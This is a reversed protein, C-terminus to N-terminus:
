PRGGGSAGGPWRQVAGAADVPVSALLVQLQSLDASVDTAVSGSAGDALAARDIRIETDDPILGDTEIVLVNGEEGDGEVSVSAVPVRTARLEAGAGPTQLRISEHLKEGELALEIPGPFEVRVVSRLTAAGNEVRVREATAETPREIERAGNSGGCGAVLVAVVIALLAWWTGRASTSNGRGATTTLYMGAM